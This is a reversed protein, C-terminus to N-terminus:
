LPARHAALRDGDTRQLRGGLGRLQVDGDDHRHAVLRLRDLGQGGPHRVDEVAQALAELDDEDVVAGPVARRRAHPVGPRAVGPHLQHPQAAVEALGRGEGGAEIM